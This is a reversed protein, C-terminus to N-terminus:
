RRYRTDKNQPFVFSCSTKSSLIYSFIYLNIFHVIFPIRFWPSVMQWSLSCKESQSNQLKLRPLACMNGPTRGNFTQWSWLGTLSFSPGVPRCIVVRRQGSWILNDTVRQKAVFPFIMERTSLSSKRPNSWFNSWKLSQRPVSLDSPTKRRVNTSARTKNLSPLSSWSEMKLLRRVLCADALKQGSSKRLPLALWTANRSLSSQTKRSM